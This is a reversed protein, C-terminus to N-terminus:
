LNQKTILTFYSCMFSYATGFFINKNENESIVKIKEEIGSQFLDSNSIWPVNFECTAMLCKINDDCHPLSILGFVKQM